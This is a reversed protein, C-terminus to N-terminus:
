LHKCNSRLPELATITDVFISGEVYSIIGSLPPCPNQPFKREECVYKFAKVIIDFHNWM